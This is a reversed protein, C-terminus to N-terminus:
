KQALDEAAMSHCNLTRGTECLALSVLSGDDVVGGCRERQITGLFRVPQVLYAMDRCPFVTPRPFKKLPAFYLGKLLDFLVFVFM